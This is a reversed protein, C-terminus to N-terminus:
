KLKKVLRRSLDGNQLRLDQHMTPDFLVVCLGEGMASM